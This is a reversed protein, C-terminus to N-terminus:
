FIVFSLSCFICKNVQFIKLSLIMEFCGGGPVLSPLQRIDSGSAWISSTSYEEKLLTYLNDITRKLLLQSSFIFINKPINIPELYNTIYVHKFLNERKCLM